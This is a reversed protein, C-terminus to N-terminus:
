GIVWGAPINVGVSLIIIGIVIFMLAGFTLFLASKDKFGIIIFFGGLILMVLNIIWDM